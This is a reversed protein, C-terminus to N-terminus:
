QIWWLRWFPYNRVIAQGLIMDQRVLSQSLWLQSDGSTALLGDTSPLICVYGDPITLEFDGPMRDSYLPRLKSPKGNITLVGRRWRVVSEPGAIIRDMGFGGRRVTTRHYEQETISYGASSYVVVQGPSPLAPLNARPRFLVVDGAAMPPSDIMWQRADIVSFVGRQVPLYLAIVMLCAAATWIAVSAVVTRQDDLERSRWALDVMSGAHVALMLGALLASIASGFTLVCLAAMALWGCAFCLGREGQGEHWHALGPVLM